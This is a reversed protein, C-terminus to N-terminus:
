IYVLSFHVEEHKLLKTDVFCQEREPSTPIHCYYNKFFSTDLNTIQKGFVINYCGKFEEFEKLAIRIDDSDREDTRGGPLAVQGTFGFAGLPDLTLMSELKLLCFSAYVEGNCKKKTCCTAM